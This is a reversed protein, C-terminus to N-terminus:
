LPGPGTALQETTTPEAVLSGSAIGGLGLLAFSSVLLARRFVPGRYCGTRFPNTTALGGVPARSVPARLLRPLRRIGQDAAVLVPERSVLRGDGAARRRAVM